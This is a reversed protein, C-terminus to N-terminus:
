CTAGEDPSTNELLYRNVATNVCDDGGYAGHGDGEHTLLVGSDLQGALGEAWAYPTAPDRTTGIVLIDPSGTARVTVPHGTPEVPWAHCLLTAWAFDRGFTPSADEFSPLAAEVADPGTLAAPSDLCSIAPFAFMITGYSGDDDRENYADSMELLATGDGDDLASTLAQRLRPWLAEAYLGYVVGTTALSETLPRSDEGTPLPDADTAAFFDRLRRSADDPGDTGLPCDDRSTCDGAFSRFATEFGGAQERDTVLSPLRPDVAADLVLRGARQPFLGAYVAGLETGYSAGYYHLREDGLVARLIDMDRATETTSIHELLEGHRELCGEGFEEFADLLAATEAASDPTRDTLTHADMEEGPLCQVPSSGATGRPDFGVIDYRARVPAPLGTGAYGQVYGIASAGPGGPNVLLSGIREGPGTAPVRTLALELDGAAGPEAYDLPVTLTACRFDEPGCGRWSLQQDYYPELAAPVARPLPRLPPAAPEPSEPGAGSSAPASSAPGPPPGSGDDGTVCGTLLAPLTLLALLPALPRAPHPSRRNHM